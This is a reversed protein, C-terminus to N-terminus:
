ALVRGGGAELGLSGKIKLGLSLGMVGGKVGTGLRLNLSLGQVGLHTKVMSRIRSPAVVDSSLQLGQSWGGSFVGIGFGLGWDWRVGPVLDLFGLRLTLDKAM